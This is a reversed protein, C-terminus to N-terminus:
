LPYPNENEEKGTEALASTSVRYMDDYMKYVAQATTPYITRQSVIYQKAWEPSGIIKQEFFEPDYVTSNFAMLSTFPIRVKRCKVVFNTLDRLRKVTHNYGQTTYYIDTSYKRTQAFKMLLSGPLKSWFYSPLYVSAEDIVFICNECDVLAKRYEAEHDIRRAEYQKGKHRFAIPTNSIVTAGNIMQERLDYVMNLTKGMGPLGIYGKIM